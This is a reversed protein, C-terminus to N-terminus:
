NAQRRLFEKEADWGNAVMLLMGREFRDRHQDDFLTAGFRGVELCLAAALALIDDAGDVWETYGRSKVLAAYSALTKNAFEMTEFDFKESM